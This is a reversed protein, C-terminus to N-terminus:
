EPLVVEEGEALGDLIEVRDNSEIGIQVLRKEPTKATKVNVFTAEEEYQVAELPLTLVNEHRALEIDVTGNMGLRYRNVDVGPLPIEIKYITAGSTRTSIQSKFAIYELTGSLTAGNNYADLSITAPMGKQISGIDVEDVEASFLLTAPNVIEFNQTATIQVGTTTVPIATVIGAIPAVLYSNKLAIDSLEVDLVSNDLSYQQKNVLRKITDTWLTNQADANQQDFNTRATMYDNLDKQLNKKLDAVDLSVLTQGKSVLDGEQVNIGAVKGSTLFHLQVTEKAEISGSVILTQRITERTVPTFRVEVPQPRTKFYVFGVVVIIIAAILLRKRTSRVRPFKM